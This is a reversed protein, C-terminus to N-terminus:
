LGDKNENETDVELREAVLQNAYGLQSYTIKLRFRPYDTCKLEVRGPSYKGDSGGFTFIKQYEHGYDAYRHPGYKRQLIIQLQERKQKCMNESQIDSYATVYAITGTIPTRVTAYHKFDKYPVKPEVWYTDTSDEAKGLTDELELIDGLNFGFGGLVPEYNKLQAHTLQANGFFSLQLLFIYGLTKMINKKM